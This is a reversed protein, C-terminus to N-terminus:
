LRLEVGADLEVELPEAESDLRTGHVGGGRVLHVCRTGGGTSIPCAADRVGHGFLKEHFGPAHWSVEIGV